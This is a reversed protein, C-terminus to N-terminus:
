PLVDEFLLTIRDNLLMSYFTEKGNVTKPFRQKWTLKYLYTNECIKKWKYEDYPEGLVKVLEDCNPNNPRIQNFAEEIDQNHKQALVIVYDTLLYDILRDNVKWYNYLFDKIVGFIWRNEYNCGLSYNAFHGCAVSGHLYDPRKISWLPLSMYKDFCQGTCFFTADLWIGGYKALLSLRLLDSYLTRSIINKKRKYEIWDPFQIYDKYNNETICIVDYMGSNRKISQVCAKVIEPANDLGQWWCIWIKDRMNEHCDPLAKSFKYTIWYDKYRQELYNLMIKHKEILRRRVNEPERFGNRSMIQIDIKARFTILAAKLSVAKSIDYTARIEEILRHIIRKISNYKKGM